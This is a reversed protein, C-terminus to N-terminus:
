SQVHFDLETPWTVPLVSTNALQTVLSQTNSFSSVNLAEEDIEVDAYYQNNQKLWLLWSRLAQSNVNLETISTVTPRKGVVINQTLDSPLKPLKRAIENVDQPFNIIHGRYGTQHGQIKFMALVPNVRAILMEEVPTLTLLNHPVDGPDM